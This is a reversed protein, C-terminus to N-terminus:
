RPPNTHRRPPALRALAAAYADAGESDTNRWTGALRDLITDRTHGAAWMRQAAAWVHPPDNAWIQEAVATYSAFRDQPVGRGSLGLVTILKRDTEDAADLEDARRAHKGDRAQVLGDGREQPRAIAFTRRMMIPFMVEGDSAVEDPLDQVYRRLPNLSQDAWLAAFKNLLFELQLLLQRRRSRPMDQRDALWSTWARLFPPIEAGFRDPGTLTTPFVQLLIRELLLPGILLPDCGLQNACTTILLLPLKRAIPGQLDRSHPSALFEDAIRQRADQPWRAAADAPEPPQRAHGALTTARHRSINLAAYLESYTEDKPDAGPPRGHRLFADIGAQLAVAADPAPIERVATGERRARRGLQQRVQDPQDAITLAVVSGHWTADLTAVVSHAHAGDAYAFECLLTQTEGYADALIVCAGPTVQGLQGTWAPSAGAREAAAAIGDAARAAYGSIEPPGVVALARLGPYAHAHSSRALEDAVDLLATTLFGGDLGARFVLGILTSVVLEAEFASPVSAPDALNRMPEIIADYVARLGPERLRGRPAPRGRDAPNRRQSTKAPKRSRSKPSVRGSCAVTAAPPSVRGPSFTSGDRCASHQQRHSRQAHRFKGRHSLLGRGAAVARLVAPLRRAPGAKAAADRIEDTVLVETFSALLDQMATPYSGVRDLTRVTEIFGITSTGMPMEPSEALFGRLEPAYPRGTVLTVLASADLYIM